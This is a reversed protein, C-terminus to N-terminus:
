PASPSGPDDASERPPSVLEYKISVDSRRRDAKLMLRDGLLFAQDHLVPRSAATLSVRESVMAAVGARRGLRRAIRRDLVIPSLRELAHDVEIGLREAMLEYLSRRDLEDVAIARGIALPLSSRQFVIPEGDISRVRQVLLVRRSDGMGAGLAAAAARDATQERRCVVETTVTRGQQAMEEVLGRLPGITYDFRHPAVFTGAGHKTLLLGELKLTEIAHRLTMHSVGFEESLERQSPLLADIAYEGREIRGRLEAAIQRYAPFDRRLELTRSSRPGAFLPTPPRHM